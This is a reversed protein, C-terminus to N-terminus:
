YQTQSRCVQAVQLLRWWVQMSGNVANTMLAPQRTIMSTLMAAVAGAAGAMHTNLLIHGVNIGAALTSGGNFGFWGFWLLFGGIAIFSL